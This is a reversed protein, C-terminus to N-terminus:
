RISCAYDRTWEGLNSKPKGAEIQKFAVTLKGTAMNNLLGRSAHAYLVKHASRVGWKIMNNTRKNAYFNGGDNVRINAFIEPKSSMRAFSVTESDHATLKYGPFNMVLAESTPRLTIKNVTVSGSGAAKCDYIVAHASSAVLSFLVAILTSKM